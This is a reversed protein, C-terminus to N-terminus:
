PTMLTSGARKSPRIGFHLVVASLPQNSQYRMCFRIRIPRIAQSFVVNRHGTGFHPFASSGRKGAPLRWALCLRVDLCAGSVGMNNETCKARYNKVLNRFLINFKPTVQEGLRKAPALDLCSPHGSSAENGQISM